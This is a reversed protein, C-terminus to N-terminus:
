LIDDFGNGSDAGDLYRREEEERLVEGKVTSTDIDSTLEFTVLGAPIVMRIINGGMLDVKETDFQNHVAAKDEALMNPVERTLYFVLPNLVNCTLLTDKAATDVSVSANELIHFYFIWTKDPDNTIQRKFKQLRGWLMKLEPEDPSQFIVDMVFFEPNNVDNSLEISARNLYYVQEKNMSDDPDEIAYSQYSVSTKSFGDIDKGSLRRTFNVIDKRTLYITGDERQEVAELENESAVPDVKEESLKKGDSDEKFYRSFDM